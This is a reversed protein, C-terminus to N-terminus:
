SVSNLLAIIGIILYVGWRIQNHLDKSATAKRLEKDALICLIAFVVAFIFKLIM